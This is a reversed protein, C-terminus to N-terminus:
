VCRNQSFTATPLGGLFSGLISAVGNGVIGGSLERETPDRDMGGATTASLDGIAQVSNVIFRDRICM